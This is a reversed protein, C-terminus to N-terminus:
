HRKNQSKPRLVSWDLKDHKPRKFAGKSSDPSSQQGSEAKASKGRDQSESSTDSQKRKLDGDSDINSCEAGDLSMGNERSPTKGSPPTSNTACAETAEPRCVNGAAENLKDVSPNFSQFSMRGIAAGPHPDGEMIVVCKRVTGPSFFNGDPKDEEQKKTKEERQAARQMFKLNKLTNSMERKAM